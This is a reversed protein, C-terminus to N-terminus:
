DSLGPIGHSTVPYSGHVRVNEAQTRLADIADGVAGDAISGELDAFFM